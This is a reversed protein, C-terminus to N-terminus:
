QKQEHEKSEMISTEALRLKIFAWPAAVSVWLSLVAYCLFCYLYINQREAILPMFKEVRLLILALAATGIIFRAFLTLYKVIGKRQLVDASKFGIFRKNLCYGTGLGFMIGGSFVFELSPLYLIMLFSAAASAIMFGRFGFKSLLAEIKNRLLLYGCFIIAVIIWRIDMSIHIKENLHRYLFIAWISLVVVIGLQLVVKENVCWYIFFPLLLFLFILEM